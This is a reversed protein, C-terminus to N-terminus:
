KEVSSEKKAYSILAGEFKIYCMGSILLNDIIETDTIEEIKQLKSTSEFISSNFSKNPENQM